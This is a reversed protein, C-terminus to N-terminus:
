VYDLLAQESGPSITEINGYIMVVDYRKLNELTLAGLDETYVIQIGRNMMVPAFPRLREAPKHLGNDGLFLVKLVPQAFAPAAGIGAFVVALIWLPLACRGHVPNVSASCGSAGRACRDRIRSLFFDLMFTM